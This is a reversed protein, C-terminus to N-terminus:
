QVVLVRVPEDAGAPRVDAQRWALHSVALDSVEVKARTSDSQQVDGLDITREVIAAQRVVPHDAVEDLLTPGVLATKVKESEDAVSAHVRRESVKEREDVKGFGRADGDDRMREEVTSIHL